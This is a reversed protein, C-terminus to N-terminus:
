LASATRGAAHNLFNMYIQLGKAQSKEPHFQTAVCNGRRIASVFEGGYDTTCWTLGSNDPVVHYTHDFYFQDGDSLNARLSDDEDGAFAVSNWGMHPVKLSRDVEFRIVNGAFIGLGEVGGEESHDFLAQLGLCIGFFPRDAAIWDAIWRDFGVSRLGSICDGLAGVGPLVVADWDDGEPRDVVTVDGGVKEFAKAVSRLNGMGYDILAVRPPSLRTRDEKVIQELLELSSERSSDVGEASRLCNPAALM